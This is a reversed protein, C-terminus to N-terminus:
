VLNKVQHDDSLVEDVDFNKTKFYVEIEQLTKGKTEPLKAYFYGLCIFMLGANLVFLGHYGMVNILYPLLLISCSITSVYIPSSMLFCFMKIELPFIEGMFIEIIPMPGTHVIIFYLALLCVNIWQFYVESNKYYLCLSLVLLVLNAAVGTSFLLLRISIKKILVISLCTGILIFGDVLLTFFLVDSSGTVQELIVTALTTFVIKGAAAYYTMLFAMMLMLEWFYLKRFALLVKRFGESKTAKTTAHKNTEMKILLRLEEDSDPTQKHLKRFSKECEDYKAKSALWQPSELWFYPSILHIISIILGMLTLKRWHILGGLLHGVLGGVAPTVMGVMSLLLARYEPSTYEAISVLNLVSIVGNSVGVLFRSVMFSAFTRSYYLVIWNVLIPISFIIYSWRRGIIDCTVSLIM